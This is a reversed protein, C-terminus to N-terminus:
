IKLENGTLAFYLNQLQHVHKIEKPIEIWDNLDQDYADLGLRWFDFSFHVVTGDISLGSKYFDFNLVEEFGFKKLWEDTLPIPQYDLYTGPVTNKTTKNTIFSECITDIEVVENEQGFYLKDNFHVLNGIRLEKASIMNKCDNRGSKQRDSGRRM